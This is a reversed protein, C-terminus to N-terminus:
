IWDMVSGIEIIKGEDIDFTAYDINNTKQKEKNRNINASNGFLISKTDKLHMM